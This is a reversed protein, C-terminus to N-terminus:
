VCHRSDIIHCASSGM